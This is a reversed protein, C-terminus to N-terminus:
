CRALRSSTACASLSCPLKLSSSASASSADTARRRSFHRHNDRIRVDEDVEQAAATRRPADGDLELGPREGVFLKRVGHPPTGRAPRARTYFEEYARWTSGCSASKARSAAM